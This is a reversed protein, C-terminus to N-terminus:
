PVANCQQANHGNSGCLTCSHDGRRCPNQTCGLPGNWSFCFRKGTKSARAGTSEQKILLCPSGNSYSNSSCSHSPHSKSRDGCFICRGIKSPNEPLTYQQNRFHPPQFNRSTYAPPNFSSNSAYRDSQHKLDAQVLALIKKHSYRVELDNWIGISFQSPDISTQTARKRIEADYALYLPWLEARNESNLIRSYHAEWVLFEKPVHSGILELLRRWAQHWEDFTLELEGNDHLVKSTTIVQGTSPDFSLIDQAANLASRNKFECAKDTLYTLPVHSVWGDIFKKRINEPVLYSANNGVLGPIRPPRKRLSSSSDTPQPVTNQAPVPTNHLPAVPPDPIDLLTRLVFSFLSNSIISRFYDHFVSFLVAFRLLTAAFRLLIAAFQLLIAAFRLCYRRVATFYRRVAIPLLIRLLLIIFFTLWM